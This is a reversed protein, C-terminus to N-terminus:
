HETRSPSTETIIKDFIAQQEESLYPRVSKILEKMAASHKHIEGLHYQIENMVKQKDFEM